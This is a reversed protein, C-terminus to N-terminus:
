LNTKLSNACLQSTRLHSATPACHKNCYFSHCLGPYRFEHATGYSVSREQLSGKTKSIFSSSVIYSLKERKLIKMYCVTSTHKEM